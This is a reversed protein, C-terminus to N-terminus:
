PLTIGAKKLEKDQENLLKVVDHLTEEIYDGFMENDEFELCFVLLNEDTVGPKTDLISVEDFTRHIVFRDKM